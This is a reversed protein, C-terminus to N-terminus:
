STGAFLTIGTSRIIANPTNRLAMANPTNRLENVPPRAHTYRHHFATAHGHLMVHVTRLRMIHLNQSAAQLNTKISSLRM